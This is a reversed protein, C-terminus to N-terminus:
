AVYVHKYRSCIKTEIINYQMEYYKSGGMINYAKIRERERELERMECGYMYMSTYNYISVVYVLEQPTYVSSVTSHLICIYM